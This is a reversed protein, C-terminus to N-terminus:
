RKGDLALERYTGHGIDCILLLLCRKCGAGCEEEIGVTEVLGFIGLALHKALFPNFLHQLSCRRLWVSENFLHSLSNGVEYTIGFLAIVEGHQRQLVHLM